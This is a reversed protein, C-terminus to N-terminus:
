SSSSPQALEVCSLHPSFRFVWPRPGDIEHELFSFAHLEADGRHDVSRSLPCDFSFLEYRKFESGYVIYTTTEM